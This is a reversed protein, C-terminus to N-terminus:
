ELALDEWTQYSLRPIGKADLLGVMEGDSLDHLWAWCLLRLDVGNDRTLRGAVQELFQAQGREGGFFELAPWGLESFGMLKGPMYKLARSYYDDPIDSPSNIGKVAFPYSTFVLLDMKSSNFMSLVNLDAERDESVIERAFTCFVFTKPSLAKVDDYIKNYLSIFNQFGNPDGDEAGYKEYWRNVENGISLFLPKSNKVVAIVSKEYAERWRYDSLTANQMDPPTVLTMNEGIFSLHILPIMGNGRTYKKVFTEGWSGSLDAALGYFPTPKGWVPVIESDKSAQKFADEFSQGESPIPLVGMYFGRQPLSTSDVPEITLNKDSNNVVEHPKKSIAFGITALAFIIIV